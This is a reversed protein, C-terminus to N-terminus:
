KLVEVIDVDIERGTLHREVEGSLRVKAQESVAQPPWDEDDIEVELTGTADQFEYTDDKLRKVIQGQLMVPTDDAAELAAAVTTIQMNAGPGTYGGAALAAGSLLPAFLLALVQAKM